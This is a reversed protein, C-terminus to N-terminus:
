GILEGITKGNDNEFLGENAGVTGNVMDFVAQGKGPPLGFLTEIDTFNVNDHNNGMIARIKSGLEYAGRQQQVYARLLGAHTAAANATSIPIFTRAM